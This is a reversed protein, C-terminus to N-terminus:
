KLTIQLKKSHHIVAHNHPQFTLIFPIRDRKEKQSTQRQARHLGAQVVFAPYCRKDFFDRM